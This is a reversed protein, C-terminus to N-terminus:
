RDTVDNANEQFADPFFGPPPWIDAISSPHVLPQSGELRDPDHCFAQFTTDDMFGFDKLGAERSVAWDTADLYVLDKFISDVEDIMDEPEDFKSSGAIFDLGTGSSIRRDTRAANAPSIMTTVSSAAPQPPTPSLMLESTDSRALKDLFDASRNMTGPLEDTVSFETDEMKTDETTTYRRHAPINIGFLSSAYERNNSARLSNTRGRQQIPLESQLRLHGVQGMKPMTMAGERYGDSSANVIESATGQLSMPSTEARSEYPRWHEITSVLSGYVPWTPKLKTANQLLEGMWQTFPFSGPEIIDRLSLSQNGIARVTAEFIPPLGCMQFNELHQTIMTLARFFLKKAEETVLRQTAHLGLEEPAIRMYLWLLTAIYTLGLYTQHPLLPSQREPYVSEPGMMRCERPLHDDWQKMESALQRAFVHVNPGDSPDRAIRNLAGALEVLRNFTSLALIPGRRPPNDMQIGRMLPLVDGWSNWEELGDEELRGVMAIDHPHMCPTRGLRFSLLSDIVFCGFFVARGQRTEDPSQTDLYKGLGMSIAMRVAQASLLWAATWDELGINVLALLLLAQVHGLEYRERESPILKWSISYYEKAKTFSGPTGEGTISKSQSVTYSLIAWLPAHDGSGSRVKEPSLPGSAYIYSARLINHKAVVPFWTHTVAFYLDLLQSAQPPLQLTNLDKRPCPVTISTRPSSLRPRKAGPSTYQETVRPADPGLPTSSRSIRFGWNLAAPADDREGWQRKDATQPPSLESNSLMGELTGSIRSNKWTEHLTESAGDDAWLSM